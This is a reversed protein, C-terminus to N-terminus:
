ETQFIRRTQNNIIIFYILNRQITPLNMSQDKTGNGTLQSSHNQLHNIGFNSFIRALLKLDTLTAVTLKGFKRLTKM